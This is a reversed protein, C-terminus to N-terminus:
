DHSGAACFLARGSIHRVGRAEAEKIEVGKAANYPYFPTSTASFAAAQKIHRLV